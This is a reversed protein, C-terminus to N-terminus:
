HRSEMEVYHIITTALSESLAPWRSQRAGSGYVGCSSWVAPRSFVRGPRRWPVTASRVRCNGAHNEYSGFVFLIDPLYRSGVFLSGRKHCARSFEDDGKGGSDRRQAQAGDNVGLLGRARDIVGNQLVDPGRSVSIGARPEAVPTVLVLRAVTRQLLDVGRVYLPESKGPGVHDPRASAILFARGENPIVGEVANCGPAYDKRDIRRRALLDPPPVRFDILGCHTRLDTAADDIASHSEVVARDDRRHIVAPQDREVRERALRRPLRADRIGLIEVRDRHGGPNCAPFYDDPDRAAILRRAAEDIRVVGPRARLRPAKIGHRAIGRLRELVFRHTSGRLRPAAVEVRLAAASRDPIADCVIRFCIQDIDSRAVGLRPHLLEATPLIQVIEVRARNKRDILLRPLELPVVLGDGVIVPVEVAHLLQHDQVQVDSAALTFHDHLRRLVSEEVHEVAGRTLENRGRGEHLDCPRRPEVFAPARDRARFSIVVRLAHLDK